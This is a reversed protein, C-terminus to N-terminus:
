ETETLSRTWGRKGGNIQKRHSERLRRKEVGSRRRVVPLGSRNLCGEEYKRDLPLHSSVLYLEDSKRNRFYKCEGIYWKLEYLEKNSLKKVYINSSTLQM